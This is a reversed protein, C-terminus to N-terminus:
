RNNYEYLYRHLADYSERMVEEHDTEFDLAFKLRRATEKIADNGKEKDKSEKLIKRAEKMRTWFEEVRSGYKTQELPMEYPNVPKTVNGLFKDMRAWKDGGLDVLHVMLDGAEGEYTKNFDFANFWTRPQYTVRNRFHSGEMIQELAAHDKNVSVHHKKDTLPVALVQILFELSWTDVRLFFVGGNFYGNDDHTAILHIDEDPPPIFLELPVRPNLVLTDPDVWSALDTECTTKKQRQYSKCSGSRGSM